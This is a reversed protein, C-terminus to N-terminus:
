IHRVTYTQPYTESICDHHSTGLIAWKQERNRTAKLRRSKSISTLVIKLYSHPGLSETTIGKNM